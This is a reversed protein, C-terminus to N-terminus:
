YFSTKMCDRYSVNALKIEFDVMEEMEEAAVTADAGLLIAVDTAFTQYAMIFSDNRSSMYYDRSPMGLSPQDM